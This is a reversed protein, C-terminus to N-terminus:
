VVILSAPILSSSIFVSTFTSSAAHVPGVLVLITGIQSIPKKHNKDLSRGLPRHSGNRDRSKHMFFHMDRNEAFEPHMDPAPGTCTRHMDLAHGTCTRHLDPAPGTCTRAHGTCTRAHKLFFIAKNLGMPSKTSINAWFPVQPFLRTARFATPVGLRGM